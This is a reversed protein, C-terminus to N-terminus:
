TPHRIDEVGVPQPEDAPMAVNEFDRALRDLADRMLPGCLPQGHLPVLIDPQLRALRRVSAAAAPWDPTFYGPPGHIEPPQVVAAYAEEQRTTIIADGSLLMRDRERWLSIHGPTHGPSHIWQWEKLRPIGGDEALPRMRARVDIPKRPYLPSLRAMLGGVGPDPPPYSCTGDLYPMEDPHAFIPAEWRDALEQLAGVHDFHGHTLVIAAPRAHRGFRRAAAAAIRSATGPLGADLLIWGRDGADPRGLLVVNVIGLGLCAVDPGIVTLRGVREGALAARSVPIQSGIRRDRNDTLAAVAISFTGYAQMWARLRADGVTGSAACFGVGQAADILRHTRMDIPREQDPRYRTLLSYGAVIAGAAFFRRRVHPRVGGLYKPVSMLALVSIADLLAHHRPPIM